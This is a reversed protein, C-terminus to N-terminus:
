AMVSSALSKKWMLSVFASQGRRGGRPRSSSRPAYLEMGTTTQNKRQLGPFRGGVFYAVFGFHEAAKDPSKAVMPVNLKRAIAEAITRLTIGEAAIAHYRSGAGGHELALRFLDAADLRHVAPWRNLGDGLYASVGKHKAIAALRTAFGQRTRDHVMVPLRVISARVGQSAFGLAMKESPIRVAGPSHPDGEDDETTPRGPTLLGIASTVVLPKGTGVLASGLTEVARRVTEGAATLQTFDHNYATHIVGDWQRAGAALGATDTLDGQYAEAGLLWPPSQRITPPWKV